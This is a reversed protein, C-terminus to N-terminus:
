RFIKETILVHKSIKTALEEKGHTNAIQFEAKEICETIGMEFNM